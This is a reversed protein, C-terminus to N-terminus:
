EDVYDEYPVTENDDNDGEEHCEEDEPADALDKPPLNTKGHPRPSSEGYFEV